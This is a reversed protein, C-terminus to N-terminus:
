WTAPCTLLIAGLKIGETFDLRCVRTHIRERIQSSSHGRTLEEVHRGHHLVLIGAM